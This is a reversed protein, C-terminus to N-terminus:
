DRESSPGWLKGPGKPFSFYRHRHVQGKSCFDLKMLRNTTLGQITTQVNFDCLYSYIGGPNVNSFFRFKGGCLTNLLKMHNEFYVAIIDGGGCVNIPQDEICSAAHKPHPLIRIVFYNHFIGQYMLRFVIELYKKRM